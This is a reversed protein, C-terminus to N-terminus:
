YSRKKDNPLPKCKQAVRYIATHMRCHLPQSSGAIEFRLNLARVVIYRAAGQM